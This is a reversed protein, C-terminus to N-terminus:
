TWDGLAAGALRLQDVSWFRTADAMVGLDLEFDDDFPTPVTVVPGVILSRLQDRNM